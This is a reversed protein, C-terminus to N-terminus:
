KKVKRHKHNKIKVKRTLELSSVEKVENEYRLERAKFSKSYLLFNKAKKCILFYPCIGYNFCHGDERPWNEPNLLEEESLYSFKAYLDFTLTEIDQRVDKVANRGFKYPYMIYYWDAREKLDKRLRILFQKQTENKRVYIAPKRFVLYHCENFHIDEDKMGSCYGNIQKDFLLHTFYEKNLFQSAATKIEFMKRNSKQEYYGKGDLTGEFNVPSNNLRVSFRYERETITTKKIYDKRVEFWVGVITKIMKYQLDHEERQEPLLIEGKLLEKDKLEMAKLAKDLSKTMLIIEVGEGLVAGYWFNMNFKRPVLNMIYRWFGFRPCSFASLKHVDVHILKTSPKIIQKM